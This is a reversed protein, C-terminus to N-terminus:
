YEIAKGDFAASDRVVDDMVALHLDALRQFRIAEQGILIDHRKPAHEAGDHVGWRESISGVATGWTPAQWRVSRDSYNVM